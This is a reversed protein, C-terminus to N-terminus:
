NTEAKHHKEFLLILAEDVLKSQNIRTEAALLKLKEVLAKDISLGVRIRYKMM